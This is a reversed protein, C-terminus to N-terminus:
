PKPLLGALNKCHLIRRTLTRWAYIYIVIYSFILVGWDGNKESSADLETM